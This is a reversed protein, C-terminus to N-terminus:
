RPRLCSLNVVTTILPVHYTAAALPVQDLQRNSHL